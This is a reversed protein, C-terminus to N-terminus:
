ERLDSKEVVLVSFSTAWWVCYFRYLKLILSSCIDDDDEDDDDESSSDLDANFGDGVGGSDDSLGVTLVSFSFSLGALFSSLFDVVFLLALLFFRLCGAILLLSLAITAVISVVVKCM